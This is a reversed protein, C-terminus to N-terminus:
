LQHTSLMEELENLNKIIGQGKKRGSRDIYISKLGAKKAELYDYKFHDGVHVMEEPKVGVIKAVKLYLRWNKRITELDSISSFTFQFFKRIKLHKIEFELFERAANTVLILKYKRKLKRLVPIVDQHLKLYPLCNRFIQLYDVDLKFKKIWFNIDYWERRGDGVAAYERKIKSLATKLPVGHKLSYQRPIEEFWVSDVFKGDVLTGDLDFSVAKIM